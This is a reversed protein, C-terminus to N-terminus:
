LSNRRKALMKPSIREDCVQMEIPSGSTDHSAAKKKKVLLIAVIVVLAILAILGVSAGVAIPLTQRQDQESEPNSAINSGSADHGSTVVEITANGSTM